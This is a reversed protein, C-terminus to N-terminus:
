IISCAGTNRLIYLDDDDLCGFPHGCIEDMIDGVVHSIYGRIYIPRIRLARHDVGDEIKKTAWYAMCTGWLAFFILSMSLIHAHVLTLM